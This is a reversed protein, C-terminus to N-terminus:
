ESEEVDAIVCSLIYLLSIDLLSFTSSSPLTSVFYGGWVLIMKGCAVSIHGAVPDLKEPSQGLVQSKHFMM